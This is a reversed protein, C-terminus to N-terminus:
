EEGMWEHLINQIQPRVEVLAAHREFGNALLKEYNTKNHRIHAAVALRIALPDLEKAMAARGVRGSHIQCAHGAIEHEIGEPCGPYIERISQAFLDVYEGDKKARLRAAKKRRGHRLDEDLMCESEAKEMAESEVLLGQREYHKRARSWQLVVAWLSSYKKSRRTLAADGRPLYSLKGLESCDMCLAVKDDTLEIWSRKGLKDGCKGCVSPKLVIFVKREEKEKNASPM